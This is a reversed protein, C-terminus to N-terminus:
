KMLLATEQESISGREDILDFLEGGKYIDIIIYFRKKDEFFDYIKVINPHDLDKL